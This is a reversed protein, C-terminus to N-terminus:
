VWGFRAENARELAEVALGKFVRSQPVKAVEVDIEALGLSSMRPRMGLPADLVPLELGLMPLDDFPLLSPLSEDM